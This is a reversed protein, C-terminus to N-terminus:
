RRDERLERQEELELVDIGDEIEQLRIAEDPNLSAAARRRLLPRREVYLREIRASRAFFAERDIPPPM